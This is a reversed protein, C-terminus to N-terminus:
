ILLKFEELLKRASIKNELFKNLLSAGPVDKPL